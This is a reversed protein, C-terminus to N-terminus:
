VGTIPYYNVYDLFIYSKFKEKGYHSIQADRRVHYIVKLSPDLILIEVM